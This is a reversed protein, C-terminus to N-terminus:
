ATPPPPIKEPKEHLDPEAQEEELELFFKALPAGHEDDEPAAPPDGPKRPDPKSL